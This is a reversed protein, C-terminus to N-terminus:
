LYQALWQHEGIYIEVPIKIEVVIMHRTPAKSQPATYISKDAEM